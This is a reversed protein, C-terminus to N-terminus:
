RPWPRFVPRLREREWDGILQLNFMQEVLASESVRLAAAVRRVTEPDAGPQGDLHRIVLERPM